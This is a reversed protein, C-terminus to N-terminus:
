GRKTRDKERTKIVVAVEHSIVDHIENVLESIFGIGRGDYLDDWPDTVFCRKDGGHVAECVHM